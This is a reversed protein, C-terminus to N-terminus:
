GLVAFVLPRGRIAHFEIELGAIFFLLVMGFRALAPLIGEMPQVLGMGNPGIAVGLLLEIVVISLGLRASALGVLPAIAAAALSM